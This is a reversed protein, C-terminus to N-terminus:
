QNMRECAEMESREMVLKEMELQKMMRRLM